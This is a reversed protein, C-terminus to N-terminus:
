GLALLVGTMHPTEAWPSGVMVVIGTLSLGLALLRTSTLPETRRVAAILTVWAPYTYFLFSLTAASVWNLAYLSLFAIAAQGVGLVILPWARARNEAAM